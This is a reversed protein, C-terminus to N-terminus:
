KNPRAPVIHAGDKSYHITGMTTDYAKGTQPDVYKGIIKKFDVIEKNASKKIGTGSYKNILKQADTATGYFVSKGNQYNNHGVIHKGQRGKHVTKPFDAYDSAKSVKKAAKAADTVKDVAKATDIINDATKATKAIDAIEGVFPIAGLADLGASLFDGRLLDVPIAAIDAFTDVGPILSAATLVNSIADLTKGYTNGFNGGRGGGM